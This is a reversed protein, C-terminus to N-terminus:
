FYCKQRWTDKSYIYMHLPMSIIKKLIVNEPPESWTM